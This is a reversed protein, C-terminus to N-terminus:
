RRRTSRTATDARECHLPLQACIEICINEPVTGATFRDDRDPAIQNVIRHAPLASFHRGDLSAVTDCMLRLRVLHRIPSQSFKRYLNLAAGRPRERRGGRGAWGPERQRERGAPRLAPRSARLCKDAPAAASGGSPWRSRPPNSLPVRAAARMPSKRAPSFGARDALLRVARRGKDFGGSRRRPAAVGHNVVVRTM